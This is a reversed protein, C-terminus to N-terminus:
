EAALDKKNLWGTHTGGKGDPWEVRCRTGAIEKITVVTGRDIHPVGLNDGGNKASQSALADAGGSPTLRAKGGTALEGQGKEPPDSKTVVAPPAPRAAPASRELLTVAGLEGSALVPVQSRGAPIMARFAASDFEEEVGSVLKNWTVRGGAAPQLTKLVAHTFLGHGGGAQASQYSLQGRSCAFLVATGKPLATRTPEIGRALGRNPDQEERCADILFLCTAGSGKPADFLVNLPILTGPSDPKGDFGAVFPEEPKGPAPPMTFGHTCVVVLFVDGKGLSDAPSTGDVVARLRKEIAGKTADRDTLTHVEFGGVKLAKGLEAVDKQPSGNLDPLDHKFAGVGVLFAVRRGKEQALAPPAFTAIILALAFRCRPM